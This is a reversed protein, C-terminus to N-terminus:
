GRSAKEDHGWRGFRRPLEAAVARLPQKRHLLAVLSHYFVDAAESVVREDAEGAIAQALESAEERLKEGIKPAGADLLARTYSKEGSSAVRAELTRELRLFTPAAASTAEPLSGDPGLRRFFCTSAGTHCSPGEPDALYLVADADCDVWVEAVRLVHGSTEGKRWLAKRSRSFFHADGTSLTAALAEADAHAVM